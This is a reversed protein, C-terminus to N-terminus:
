KYHNGTLILLAKRTRRGMFGPHDLWSFSETAVLAIKENRPKYRLLVDLNQRHFWNPKIEGELLEVERLQIFFERLIEALEKSGKFVDEMYNDLSITTPPNVEFHGRGKYKRIMANVEQRIPQALGRVESQAEKDEDTLFRSKADIVEMLFPLRQSKLARKLRIEFIKLPTEIPRKKDLRKQMRDRLTTIGLIEYLEFVDDKHIVGRNIMKVLDEYSSDRTKPNVLLSLDKGLLMLYKEPLNGRDRQQIEFQKLREFMQITVEKAEDLYENEEFYQNLDHPDTTRKTKFLGSGQYTAVISRLPNRLDILMGAISGVHEDVDDGPALTDKLTELFFRKDQSFRLIVNLAAIPGKRLEYYFEDKIFLEHLLREANDPTEDPFQLCAEVMFAHATAKMDDVVSEPDDILHYDVEQEANANAQRQAVQDGISALYPMGIKETNKSM